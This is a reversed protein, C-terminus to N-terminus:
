RYAATFRELGKVSTAPRRATDFPVFRWAVVTGGEAAAVSATAVNM